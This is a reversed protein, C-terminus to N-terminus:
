HRGDRKIQMDLIEAILKGKSKGLVKGGLKSLATRLQEGKMGSLEVETYTVDKADPTSVPVPALEDLKIAAAVEKVEVIAAKVPEVAKKVSEIVDPALPIVDEVLDRAKFKEKAEKHVKIDDSIEHIAAAVVKVATAVAKVAGGLATILAVIDVEGGGLQLLQLNGAAQHPLIEKLLPVTLEEKEFYRSAGPRMPSGAIVPMQTVESPRANRRHEFKHDHVVNRLLYRM